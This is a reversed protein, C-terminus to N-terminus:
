KSAQCDMGKGILNHLIMFHDLGDGYELGFIDYIAWRYTGNDEVEAKHMLKCVQRFARARGQYDLSDWWADDEAEQQKQFAGFSERLQKIEESNLWDEMTMGDDPRPPQHAISEM